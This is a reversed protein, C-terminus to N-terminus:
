GIPVLAETLDFGDGHYEVSFDMRSGIAVMSFYPPRHRLLYKSKRLPDPPSGIM